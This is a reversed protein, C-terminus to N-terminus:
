SARTCAPTCGATRWKGRHLYPPPLRCLHAATCSEDCWGQSSPEGLMVGFAASDLVSRVTHATCTQRRGPGTVCCRIAPRQSMLALGARRKQGLDAVMEAPHTFILRRKLLMQQEPALSRLFLSAHVPVPQWRDM